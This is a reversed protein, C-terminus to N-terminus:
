DGLGVAECCKDKYDETARVNETVTSGRLPIYCEVPVPVGSLDGADLKAMWQQHCATTTTPPVWTSRLQKEDESWRGESSAPASEPVSSQNLAASGTGDDVGEGTSSEKSSPAGGETFAALVEGNGHLQGTYPNMFSPFDLERVAGLRDSDDLSGIPCSSLFLPAQRVGEVVAAIAEGPVAESLKLSWGRVLLDRSDGAQVEGDRLLSVSKVLAEYRVTDLAQKGTNASTLGRPGTFLPEHVIKVSMWRARHPQVLVTQAERDNTVVKGITLKKAEPGTPVTQYAVYAAPALSGWGARKGPRAGSRAGGDGRVM